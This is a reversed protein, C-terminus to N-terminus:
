FYQRKTAACKQWCKYEFWKKFGDQVVGATKLAVRSQFCIGNNAFGNYIGSKARHSNNM